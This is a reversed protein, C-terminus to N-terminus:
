PLRMRLLRPGRHRKLRQKWQRLVKVSGVVDEQPRRQKKAAEKAARKGQAEVIDKYSMVKAKEVMSGTSRRRKAEDNQKFLLRNEDHLLCEAFSIQACNARRMLRILM